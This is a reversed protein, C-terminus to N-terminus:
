GPGARKRTSPTQGRCAAHEPEQMLQNQRPKARLPLSLLSFSPLFPSALANGGKELLRLFNIHRHGNRERETTRTEESHNWSRPGSVMVEESDRWDLPKWSNSIEANRSLGEKPGQARGNWTAGTRQVLARRNEM